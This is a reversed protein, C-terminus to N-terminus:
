TPLPMENPKLDGKKLPDFRQSDTDEESFYRNLYRQGNLFISNKTKNNCQLPEKYIKYDLEKYSVYNALIKERSTAQRNKRKATNNASDFNKM